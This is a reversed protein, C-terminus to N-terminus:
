ANEGDAAGQYLAVILERFVVRAQAITTVNNLLWTDLAALSTINNTNAWEAMRRTPWGQPQTTQAKFTMSM